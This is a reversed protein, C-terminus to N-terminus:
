IEHWYCAYVLVFGFFACVCVCVSVCVILDLPADASFDHGVCLDSCGIVGYYTYLPSMLTPILLLCLYALLCIDSIICFVSHRIVFVFPRLATVKPCVVVFFKLRSLCSSGFFLVM